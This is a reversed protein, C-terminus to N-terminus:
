SLSQDYKESDFLISVFMYDYAKINGSSSIFDIESTNNLRRREDGTKASSIQDEPADILPHHM